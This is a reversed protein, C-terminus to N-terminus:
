RDAQEPHAADALRKQVLREKIRLHDLDPTGIRGRFHSFQVLLSEAFPSSLSAVPILASVVEARRTSLDELDIVLEPIERFPPLYSYRGQTATLVDKRLSSWEQNGNKNATLASDWTVYKPHESLPHAKALLVHDVKSQAFDCAPTLVIWWSLGDESSERLIDGPSRIALVPPYIYRHHPQQSLSLEADSELSRALRTILVEALNGTEGGSDAYEEWNPGVENWMHIRIIEDIKSEIDSIVDLARSDIAARVAMPLDSSDDKAIVTM